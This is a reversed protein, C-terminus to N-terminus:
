GTVTARRRQEQSLFFEALALDAPTTIKINQPSGMVVAVEQGIREALSAEDTGQFGDSQAADFAKKLVEYRFGQPTQALVVRARPITSVVIAGDATRDVQKVTDVAPLGAIAAGHRVAADIVNAITETDVFPRVADHVLVVDDAAAQIYRLGNAVSQQRNEGGEVITVNIHLREQKLRSRFRPADDARLAVVIDGVRHAGDFKRLTHILIPVGGIEAFQKLAASVRSPKAGATLGGMRTGLGAAPVIVFVKM